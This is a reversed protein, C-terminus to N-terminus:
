ISRCSIAEQKTDTLKCKSGTDTYVIDVTCHVIYLMAARYAFSHYHVHSEVTQTSGLVTIQNTSIIALPLSIHTM